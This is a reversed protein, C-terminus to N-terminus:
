SIHCCLHILRCVLYTHVAYGPQLKYPHMSVYGQGLHHPGGGGGGGRAWM